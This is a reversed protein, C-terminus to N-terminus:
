HSGTLPVFRVPIIDRTQMKGNRKEALILKQTFFPHGVPIILRGGEALQRILPPPIHEAAATVIIVDFPAEEQWGFYGDAHRININEYGLEAIVKQARIALESIIEISHVSDVLQAIVAAHYGSGTGVELVRDTQKLQALECMYAVIFPQSITQGYGIPLPYDEYASNIEPEMVFKHRPVSRMAELVRREKVGRNEIQYHVMAERKMKYQEPSDARAVETAALPQSFLLALLLAKGTPRVM